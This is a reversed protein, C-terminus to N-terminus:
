LDVGPLLVNILRDEIVRNLDDAGHLGIVLAKFMPTTERLERLLEVLDGHLNEAPIRIAEAWKALIADHKQKFEEETM